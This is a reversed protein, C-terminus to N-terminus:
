EGAFYSEKKRGGKNKGEKWEFSDGVAAAPVSFQGQVASRASRPLFLDWFTGLFNFAVKLSGKLLPWNNKSL